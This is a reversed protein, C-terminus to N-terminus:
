PNSSREAWRQTWGPLRNEDFSRAVLVDTSSHLVISVVITIAVLDFVQQGATIGSALVLLGYVVSAFGRPGFWAAAAQERLGFGSGLFSLGLAVPRALM